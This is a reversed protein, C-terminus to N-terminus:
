IAATPGALGTGNAKLTRNLVTFSSLLTSALLASCQGRDFLCSITSDPKFDKGPKAREVRLTCRQQLAVEPGNQSLYQICVSATEFWSRKLTREDWMQEEMHRESRQLHNQPQEVAGYPGCWWPSPSFSFGSRQSSPEAECWFTPSQSYQSLFTQMECATHMHGPFLKWCTQLKALSQWWLQHTMLISHSSLFSKWLHHAQSAVTQAIVNDRRGRAQGPSVAFMPGGSQPSCDKPSHTHFLLVM